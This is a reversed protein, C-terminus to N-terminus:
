QRGELKLTITAICYSIGFIIFCTLATIIAACIVIFIIGITTKIMANILLNM